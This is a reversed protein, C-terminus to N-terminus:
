GYGNGIPQIMGSPLSVEPLGIPIIFERIFLLFASITNSLKQFFHKCFRMYGIYIELTFRSYINVFIQFMVFPTEM